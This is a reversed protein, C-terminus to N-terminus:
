HIHQKSLLNLTGTQVAGVACFDAIILHQAGFVSDDTHIVFASFEAVVRKLPNRGPGLSQIKLFIFLVVKRQLMDPRASCM